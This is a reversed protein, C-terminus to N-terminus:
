AGAIWLLAEEGGRWKTDLAVGPEAERERGRDHLLLGRLRCRPRRLPPPRALLLHDRECRAEANMAQEAEIISTLLCTPPREMRGHEDKINLQDKCSHHERVNKMQVSRNPELFSTM